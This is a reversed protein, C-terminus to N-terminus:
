EDKGAAFIAASAILICVTLALAVFCPGSKAYDWANHFWSGAAKDLGQLVRLLYIELSLCLGGGIMGMLGISKKM